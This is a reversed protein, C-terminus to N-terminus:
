FQCRKRGLAGQVGFGWLGGAAKGPREDFGGEWVGWPKSLGVGLRAGLSPRDNGLRGAKRIDPGGSMWGCSTPSPRSSRRFFNFLLKAKPRCDRLINGEPHLKLYGM